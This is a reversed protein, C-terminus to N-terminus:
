VFTTVCVTPQSTVVTLGFFIDFDAKCRFQFSPLVVVSLKVVVTDYEDTAWCCSAQAWDTLESDSVERAQSGVRLKM